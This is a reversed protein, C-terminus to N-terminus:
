AGREIIIPIILVLLLSIVIFSLIMTWKCNEWDKLKQLISVEFPKISPSKKMMIISNPNIEQRDIEDRNIDNNHINIEIEEDNHIYERYNNSNERKKNLIQIEESERELIHNFRNSLDNSNDNLEVDPKRKIQLFNKDDSKHNLINKEQTNTNIVNTGDLIIDNIDKKLPEDFSVNDSEDDEDSEEDAVSDNNEDYTECIVPKALKTFYEMKEREYRVKDLEALKNYSSRQNDNMNNWEESMKSVIQKNDLNPQQRKLSERREKQYFFLAPIPKEIMSMDEQKSGGDIQQALKTYYEMKQREYRAKDLEALRIYSFRQNDNMKNWEKSMKSVYQKTDLTPQERKLSERREKIYFFFANM